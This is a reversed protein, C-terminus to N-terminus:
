SGTERAWAKPGADHDADLRKFVHKIANKQSRNLVPDGRKLKEIASASAPSLLRKERLFAELRVIREMNDVLLQDFMIELDIEGVKKEDKDREKAEELSITAKLVADNCNLEAESIRTWCAPKKAYESVNSIGEPPKKLLAAVQPALAELCSQLEEPAAQRKWVIEFDIKRHKKQLHHVLWGITYTIINAKYGRDEKYWDSRGVERDLNRFIIAKAVMEKFYADNFSSRAKDWKKEIEQAFGLFCKQAGLSVVHPAPRFTVQYKALDTKQIVQNRPYETQFRNRDATSKRATENRYQGRAREYFWKTTSLRGAAAPAMLRRSIKQMEIHFQHNSFFDAESVRNQTNAFRSIRPVVVDVKDPEIVSLKMQVFIKSLDAAGRDSAYLLSATTQGGNVIQLNDIRAIGQQGDGNEELNIGSATATLGNNYAFFMEPENRATEIIGKNTKTRAQLFTRVNQEMLRAGYLGYIEALLTGPMVILYSEVDEDADHAELCPLLRGENLEKVDLEIPETGGQANQIDVYRVFDLINHTKEAGIVDEADFTKKRTALRANSFLVCRIRHIQMQTECILTALDFAPSSEELSYTFERDAALECFRAVRNFLQTVRDAHITALEGEAHYDCVALHLEGRDADWAYGDVQFPRAGERIIPRYTLDATDGNESALSAFMKFFVEHQPEGTYEAERLLDERFMEFDELLEEEDAM